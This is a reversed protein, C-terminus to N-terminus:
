PNNGGEEPIEGLKRQQAGNAGPVDHGNRGNPAGGLAGDALRRRMRWMGILVFAAPGAIFIAMVVLVIMGVPDPHTIVYGALLLWLLALLVTVAPMGPRNPRYFVPTEQERVIRGMCRRVYMLCRRIPRRLCNKREVPYWAHISVM